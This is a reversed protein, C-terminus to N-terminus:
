KEKILGRTNPDKEFDYYQQETLLIATWQESGDENKAKNYYKKLNNM